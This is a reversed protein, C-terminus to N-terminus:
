VVSPGVSEAGYIRRPIGFFSFYTGYIVVRPNNHKQPDGGRRIILLSRDSVGEHGTRCCLAGGGGGGRYGGMRQDRSIQICAVSRCM